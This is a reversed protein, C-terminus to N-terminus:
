TQLAQKSEKEEEADDYRVHDRLVSVAPEAMDQDLRSEFQLSEVWNLIKRGANLHERSRASCKRTSCNRSAM